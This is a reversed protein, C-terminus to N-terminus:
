IMEQALRLLGDLVLNDNIAVPFPLHPALAPLAGGGAIVYPDSQAHDRLAEYRRTIAGICADITGTAIANRTNAPFATYDGSENPLQATGRGLSERMLTLGPLIVGGAFTGDALLADITLATGAMVVLKARAVARMDAQAAVLACWRDSGLQHPTEYSNTVGCAKPSPRILHFGKGARTAYERLASEISSGAVNSLVIAQFAMASFPDSEARFSATPVAGIAAWQDGDHLAWKLRTNGADVALLGNV